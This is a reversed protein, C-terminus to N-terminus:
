GCEDAECKWGFSRRVEATPNVKGKILKHLARAWETATDVSVEDEDTRKRKGLNAIENM